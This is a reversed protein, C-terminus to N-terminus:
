VRYIKLSAALDVIYIKFHFAFQASMVFNEILSVM